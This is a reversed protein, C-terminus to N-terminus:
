RFLSWTRYLYWLYIAQLVLSPIEVLILFISMTQEFGEGSYASIMTVATTILGVVLGIVIQWIFLSNWRGALKTDGASWTVWRHGQYQHYTAVLTSVSVVLSVLSTLLALPTNAAFGTLLFIAVSGILQFILATFAKRYYGNAASLRYLVYMLGATFGVSAVQAITSLVFTVSLMSSLSFVISVTQLIFLIKMWKTLIPRHKDSQNESNFQQMEEM